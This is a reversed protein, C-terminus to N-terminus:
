GDGALEESRHALAELIGLAAGSRLIDRAMVSGSRLDSAREAVYLAAGANIAVAESAASREEGALIARLRRLNEAADGGKLAKPDLPEVGLDAPELRSSGVVEGDRVEVLTTPAAASVEDLGDDSHVVLARRAGLEALASAMLPQVERGWVGIVQREVAAPNTLPGLLNFVTRVALARRVPMVARMAPHLQPAFLFAIGIEDHLAAMAAPGLDLRVGAAELVDASGCRSSVSRNGHKAVKAGAAAAVLAAATSINITEAGDGGTGCTDVARGPDAIPVPLSRARMARAAAAVEAGTEGKVRLGALVAAVVVDDVMGDMVAGVFAEVVAPELDHGALLRNLLPRHDLSTM